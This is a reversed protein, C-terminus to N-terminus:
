ARVLLIVQKLSQCFVCSVSLPPFDAQLFIDHEKLLYVKTGTRWSWYLPGATQPQQLNAHPWTWFETFLLTLWIGGWRKLLWPRMLNPCRFVSKANGFKWWPFRCHAFSTQLGSKDRKYRKKCATGIHPKGYVVIGFMKDITKLFPVRVNSTQSRASIDGM